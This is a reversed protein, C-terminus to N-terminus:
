FHKGSFDQPIRIGKAKNTSKRSAEAHYIKYNKLHRYLLFLEGQKNDMTDVRFDDTSYELLAPHPPWVYSNQKDKVPSLEGHLVTENNHNHHLHCKSGIVRVIRPLTYRDM